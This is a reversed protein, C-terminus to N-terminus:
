ADELEPQEVSLDFWQSLKARRIRYRLIGFRLGTLALLIMAERDMENWRDRGFKRGMVLIQSHIDECATCKWEIELVEGDQVPCGSLDHKIWPGWEHEIETM